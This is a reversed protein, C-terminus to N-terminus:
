PTTFLLTKKIKGKEFLPNEKTGHNIGGTYEGTEVSGLEYIRRESSALKRLRAEALERIRAEDLERQFMTPNYVAKGLGFGGIVCGLGFLLAVLGKKM